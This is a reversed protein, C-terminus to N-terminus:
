VKEFDDRGIDMDNKFCSSAIHTITYVLRAM